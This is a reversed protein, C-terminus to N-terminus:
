DKLLEWLDIFRADPLKDLLYSYYLEDPRKALEVKRVFSKLQHYIYSFRNVIGGLLLSDVRTAHTKISGLIFFLLDSEAYWPFSNFSYQGNDDVLLIAVEKKSIHAFASQKQGVLLKEWQSINSDFFADPHKQHLFLRIHMPTSVILKQSSHNLEFCESHYDDIQDFALQQYNKINKDDFFDTPMLQIKSSNALLVKTRKYHLHLLDCEEYIRNLHKLIFEPKSDFLEQHFLYVVKNQITDLISFSFGDLSIQISLKYEFTLNSDFTEDVLSLKPM